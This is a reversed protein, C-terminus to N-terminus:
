RIRQMSISASLLEVVKEPHARQQHAFAVVVVAVVVPETHIWVTIADVRAAVVAEVLEM